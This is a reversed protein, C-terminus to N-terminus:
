RVVFRVVPASIEGFPTGLAIEGHGHLVCEDRRLQLDAGGGAFRIWCGYTSVDVLMVSGNRWDLRAHLRSVRPDSVPFEAKQIRGIHIPLEFARFTRSTDLWTLEVQGGLADHNIGDFDPSM